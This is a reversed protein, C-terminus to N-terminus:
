FLPPQVVYRRVRDRHVRPNSVYVCGCVNPRGAFNSFVAPFSFGFVFFVRLIKESIPSIKKSPFSEIISTIECSSNTKATFNNNKTQTQSNNSISKRLKNNVDYKEALWVFTFFGYLLFGFFFRACHFM